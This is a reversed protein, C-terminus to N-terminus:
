PQFPPLLRSAKANGKNDLIFYGQGAGSALGLIGLPEPLRAEPTEPELTLQSLALRAIERHGAETPHLNDWFLYEDPNNCIEDFQFDSQINTLCTETVNAFGFAAPNQTVATFLDGLDLQIIEAGSATQLDELKQSLLQNHQASLSSLRQSSQPNAQNLVIALPTQGLDPLNGVLLREAGAEILAAAANTLNDTVQNPLTEISSIAAPDTVASNYDNGGAILVYLTNPDPPTLQSVEIFSAVQQQLGPLDPSASNFESTLSGALAFNIGETPLTVTGNALNPLVESSLTPSLDLESALQAAWVLGNSSQQAYPPSPPLGSLNFLNGADVLSDGFINIGSIEAAPSTNPEQAIASIPLGGVALAIAFSKLLPLIGSLRRLTKLTFSNSPRMTRIELTLDIVDRNRVSATYEIRLLPLAAAYLQGFSCVSTRM